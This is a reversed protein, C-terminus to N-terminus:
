KIAPFCTYLLWLFSIVGVLFFIAQWAAKDMGIAVKFDATSFTAVITILIGAPAIWAKKNEVSGFHEMLVIRVKDETVRIETKNLNSVTNVIFGQNITYVATGGTPETAQPAVPTRQSPVDRNDDTM